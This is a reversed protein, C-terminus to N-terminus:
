TKRCIAGIRKPINQGRRSLELCLCVIRWESYWFGCTRKEIEDYLPAFRGSNACKTRTYRYYWARSEHQEEVVRKQWKRLVEYFVLNTIRIHTEIFKHNVSWGQDENLNQNMNGNHSEWEYQSVAKMQPENSFRNVVWWQTESYEHNMDWIQIKHLSQNTYCSFKPNWIM